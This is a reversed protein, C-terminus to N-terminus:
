ETGSVVAHTDYGPLFLLLLLFILAPSLGTGQTHHAVFHGSFGSRTTYVIVEAGPLSHSLVPFGGPVPWM